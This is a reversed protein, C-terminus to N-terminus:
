WHEEHAEFDNNWRRRAITSPEILTARDFWQVHGDTFAVQTGGMHRAGPWEGDEYTNPDIATDWEFDGKSDALAIMESPMRVGSERLEGYIDHGVWAGLGLHPDTFEKGGWDNYGYSFGSWSYVRYEDDDYGWQAPLGSGYRKTWLFADNSEPCWFASTLGGTFKRLRPPWVITSGTHHGPYAGEELVYSALALGLQHLNSGCALSRSHDRSKSLAPLLLAILLVVISIM